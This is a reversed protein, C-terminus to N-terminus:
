PIVKILLENGKVASYYEIKHIYMVIQGSEQQHVNAKSGTKPIIFLAELFM